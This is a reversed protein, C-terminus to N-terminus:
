ALQSLHLELASQMAKRGGAGFVKFQFHTLGGRSVGVGPFVGEVFGATLCCEVM